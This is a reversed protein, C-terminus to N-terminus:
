SRLIKELPKGQALEDVLKDLQRLKRMSPEAVEEVRVGCVTGTIPKAAPNFDPAQDLFSGLNAAGAARDHLDAVTDGNAAVHQHRRLHADGPTCVDFVIHYEATLHTDTTM